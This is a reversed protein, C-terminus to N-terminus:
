GAHLSCSYPSAIPTAATSRPPASTRSLRRTRTRRAAADRRSAQPPSLMRIQPAFLYHPVITHTLYHACSHTLSHTLVLLHTLPNTRTRTRTRTRAHARSHPFALIRSHTHSPPLVPTCVRRRRRATTPTTAHLATDRAPNTHFSPRARSRTPQRNRNLTPRLGQWVLWEGPNYPEKKPPAAAAEDAM